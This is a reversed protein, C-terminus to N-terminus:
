LLGLREAEARQEPSLKAIAEDARADREEPTLHSYDPINYKARLEAFVQDIPKSPGYLLNWHKARQAAAEQERAVHANLVATAYENADKGQAEPLDRMQELLEDPITLTAM